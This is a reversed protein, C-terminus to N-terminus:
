SIMVKRLTNKIRKMSRLWRDKTESGMNIRKNWSREDKLRFVSQNQIEQQNHNFNQISLFYQYIIQLHSWSSLLNEAVIVQKDETKRTRAASGHPRTNTRAGWRRRCTRWRRGTSPCSSEPTTRWDPKGRSKWRVTWRCPATARWRGWWRSTHFRWPAKFRM